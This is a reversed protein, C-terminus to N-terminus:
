KLLDETSNSVREARLGIMEYNPSASDAADCLECLTEATQLLIRTRAAWYRDERNFHGDQQSALLILAMVLDSGIPRVRLFADHRSADKAVDDLPRELRAMLEDAWYAAAELAKAAERRDVPKIPDALDQGEWPRQEWANTM